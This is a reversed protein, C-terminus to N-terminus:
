VIRAGRDGCVTIGFRMFKIEVLLFTWDLVSFLSFSLRGYVTKTKLQNELLTPLNIKLSHELKVVNQDSSIFSKHKQFVKQSSPM